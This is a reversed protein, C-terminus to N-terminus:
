KTLNPIEAPHATVSEQGFGNKVLEVQVMTGDALNDGLLQAAEVSDSVSNVDIHDKTAFMAVAENVTETASGTVPLEVADVRTHTTAAEIAQAGGFFAAAAVALAALPRWLHKKRNELMEKSPHIFSGPHSEHNTM